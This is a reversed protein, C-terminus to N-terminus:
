PLEEKANKNEEEYSNIFEMFLKPNQAAIESVTRAVRKTNENRIEARRKESVYYKVEGTDFNVTCVINNNGDFIRGMSAAM